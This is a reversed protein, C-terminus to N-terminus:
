RKGWSISMTKQPAVVPVKAAKCQHIANGEDGIRTMPTHGEHRRGAVLRNQIVLGHQGAPRVLPSEPGQRGANVLLGPRWPRQLSPQRHVIVKCERCTQNPHRRRLHDTPMHGRDILNRCRMGDTLGSHAINGESFCGRNAHSKYGFGDSPNDFDAPRRKKHWDLEPWLAREGPPTLQAGDAFEDHHSDILFIPRPSSGSTIAGLQCPQKGGQVGNASKIRYLM